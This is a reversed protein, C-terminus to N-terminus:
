RITPLLRKNKLKALEAVFKSPECYSLLGAPGLTTVEAAKFAKEVDDIADFYGKEYPDTKM